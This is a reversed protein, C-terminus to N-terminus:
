QLICLAMMMVKLLQAIKM